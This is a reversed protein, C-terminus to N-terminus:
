DGLSRGAARLQADLVALELAARASPHGRVEDLAPAIVKSYDKEGGLHIRTGMADYLPKVVKDGYERAAAIIRTSIDGIQVRPSALRMAGRVSENM